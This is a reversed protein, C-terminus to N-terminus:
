CEQLGRDNPIRAGEGGLRLRLRIWLREVKLWGEKQGERTEERWRLNLTEARMVWGGSWAHTFPNVNNDTGNNNNM